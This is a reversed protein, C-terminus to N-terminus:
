KPYRFVHTWPHNNYNHVMIEEGTQDGMQSGQIGGVEDIRADVMQGNGIYIATHTAHNLLVDGRILGEGTALDIQSTIDEFGANPFQTVMTETYGDLPVNFGAQHLATIVFSSCDYDVGGWRNPQSYGHSDDNAIDIAWQVYKEIDSNSSEGGGSSGDSSSGGTPIKDLEEIEESIPKLHRKHINIRRKDIEFTYYQEDYEDVIIENGDEDTDKIVIHRTNEKLSGPIITAKNGFRSYCFFYEKNTTFRRGFLSDEQMYFYNSNIHWVKGVYKDKTPPTPPDVEGGGLGKFKEYYYNASTIRRDIHALDENPREWCWCFAQTAEDISYQNNIFSTYTYGKANIWQKDAGTVDLNEGTLESWLFNCQHELDTGYAEIQTRRDYSWQCLGFGVGSGSEILDPNFESEAEINGMIASCVEDALGKGSLFNWVFQEIEERTM